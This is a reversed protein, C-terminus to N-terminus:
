LKILAQCQHIHVNKFHSIHITKIGATLILINQTLTVHNSTVFFIIEVENQRIIM